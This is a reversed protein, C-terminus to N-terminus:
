FAQNVIFLVVCVSFFVSLYLLCSLYNVKENLILRNKAVTNMYDEGLTRTITKLDYEHITESVCKLDFPRRWNRPVVVLFSFFSGVIPFIAIVAVSKPHPQDVFSLVMGSIAIMFLLVSGAKVSLEKNTGEQSLYESKGMELLLRERTTDSVSDEPM